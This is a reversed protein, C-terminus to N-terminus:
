TDCPRLDPEYDPTERSFNVNYYPDRTIADGWTSCFRGAEPVGPAAQERVPAHILPAHPTFVVRYGAARVRLCYDVDGLSGMQDLFGGVEQFVQRRTMLCVGSVASYNRVAIATGWYGQSFRSHRHFAPAAVGKVGLVLGIHKLSGDPYFLRAGV